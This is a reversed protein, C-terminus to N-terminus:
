PWTRWPQADATVVRGYRRQALERYHELVPTAGPDMQLAPLPRLPTLSPAGDHGGAAALAPEDTLPVQPTATTTWDASQQRQTPAFAGRASHYEILEALLSTNEWEYAVAFAGALMPASVSAGWRTRAAADAISYRVSDVALAAPLKLEAARQLAAMARRHRPTGPEEDIM